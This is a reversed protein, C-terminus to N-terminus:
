IIHINSISKSSGSTKAPKALSRGGGHDGQRQRHKGKVEVREHKGKTEKIGLDRQERAM